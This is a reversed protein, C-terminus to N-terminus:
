TTHTLPHFCRSGCSTLGTFGINAFFGQSGGTFAYDSGASSMGTLGCCNLGRESGGVAICSVSWLDEGHESPARTRDEELDNYAQHEADCAAEAKGFVGSLELGQTIAKDLQDLHQDAQDHKAHYDAANGASAIQLLDPSNAEFRDNVKFHQGRDCQHDAQDEGEGGADATTGIDVQILQGAGVHAVQGFAALVHVAGRLEQQVQDRGGHNTRKGIVVDQLHQQERNQEAARQVQDAFGSRPDGPQDVFQAMHDEADHAHDHAQRRNTHEAGNGVGGAFVAQIRQLVQAAQHRQEVQGAGGEDQQYQPQHHAQRPQADQRQHFVQAFLQQDHQTGSRGVRYQWLDHTFEFVQTDAAGRHAQHNRGTIGEVEVTEGDVQGQGDDEDGVSSARRQRHRVQHGDQQHRQDGGLAGM